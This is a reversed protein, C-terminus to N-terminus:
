FASNNMDSPILFDLSSFEDVATWDSLNGLLDYQGISTFDSLDYFGSEPSVCDSYSGSQIGTSLLCVSRDRSEISYDLALNSNSPDFVLFYEAGSGYTTMGFISIKGASKLGRYLTEFGGDVKFVEFEFNGSSKQFEVLIREAVGGPFDNRGYAMRFSESTNKLYIIRDGIVVKRDYRSNESTVDTVVADVNALTSDTDSLNTGCGDNVDSGLISLTTTGLDLEEGLGLSLGCALLLASDLEKFFHDGSSSLETQFFGAPSLGSSSGLDYDLSEDSWQTENTGSVFTLGNSNSLVESIGELDGRANKMTETTFSVGDGSINKSCSVLAILILFLFKSYGTLV